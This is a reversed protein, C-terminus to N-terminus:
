ANMLICKQFIYRCTNMAQKTLFTCKIFKSMTNNTFGKFPFREILETRVLTTKLLRKERKLFQEFKFIHKRTFFNPVRIFLYPEFGDIRLAVSENEKTRGFLFVDYSEAIKFSSTEKDSDSDSDNEEEPFIDTGYWDVAQFEISTM